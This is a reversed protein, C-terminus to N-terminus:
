TVTDDRLTTTFHSQYGSASRPANGVSTNKQIIGSEILVGRLQVSLSTAIAIVNIEETLEKLACCDAELSM